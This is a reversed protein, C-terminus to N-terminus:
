FKLQKAVLSVIRIYGPKLYYDGITRFPFNQSVDFLKLINDLQNYSGKSKLHM